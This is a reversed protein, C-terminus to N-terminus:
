MSFSLNPTPPYKIPKGAGCGLDLILSNPKLLKNLKELYKGLSIFVLILAASEYYLHNGTFNPKFWILLSIVLSYLYAVLTGTEILSDMNPNRQILKKLGSVYLPYNVTMIATTILFQIVIKTKLSLMPM